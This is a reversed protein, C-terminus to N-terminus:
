VNRHQLAGIGRRGGMREFKALMAQMGVREITRVKLYLLSYTRWHMGKPKPPFPYASGSRGGLREQIKHARRMARYARDERPSAYILHYCQRCLFHRGTGYLIAVRRGRV